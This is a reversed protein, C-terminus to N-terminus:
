IHYVYDINSGDIDGLLVNYVLSSPISATFLEFKDINDHQQECDIEAIIDEAVLAAFDESLASLYTIHTQISQVSDEVIEICSEFRTDQSLEWGQCFNAQAALYLELVQQYKDIMEQQDSATLKDAAVKLEQELQYAIDALEAGENFLENGEIKLSIINFAKLYIINTPELVMAEAYLDLAEIFKSRAIIAADEDESSELTWAEGAVKNALHYLDLSYNSLRSDPKTASVSTVSLSAEVAEQAAMYQEKHIEVFEDEAALDHQSLDIGHHNVLAVNAATEHEFWSSITHAFYHQNVRSVTSETKTTASLLEQEYIMSNHIIADEQTLREGTLYLMFNEIVEPGCNTYRQGETPLQEIKYGGEKFIVALGESIATNEPDLYFAKYGSGDEQAVFMVGVAHKGYLSIPVLITEETSLKVDSFIKAINNHNETFIYENSLILINNIRKNRARLNLTTRIGEMTYEYFPKAIGELTILHSPNLGKHIVGIAHPLVKKCSDCSQVAESQSQGRNIPPYYSYYMEYLSLSQITKNKYKENTSLEAFLKQAACSKNWQQTTKEKTFVNVVCGEPKPSNILEFGNNNKNCSTFQFLTNVTNIIRYYIQSDGSLALLKAKEGNPKFTVELSGMMMETKELNGSGCDFIPYGRNNRRVQTKMSEGLKDFLEADYIAKTLAQSLGILAKEHDKGGVPVLINNGNPIYYRKDGMQNKRNKGSTLNEPAGFKLEPFLRELIQKIIFVFSFADNPNPNDHIRKKILKRREESFNIPILLSGRTYVSLDQATVESDPGEDIFKVSQEQKNIWYAHGSKDSRVFLSVGGVSSYQILFNGTMKTEIYPKSKNTNYKFVKLGLDELIFQTQWKTLGKDDIIKKTIYTRTVNLLRQEEIDFLKALAFPVCQKNRTFEQTADADSNDNDEVETGDVEKNPQLIISKVFKLIMDVAYSCIKNLTAGPNSLDIGYKNLFKDIPNNRFIADFIGEIKSMIGRMIDALLNYGKEFIINQVYSSMHSILLLFFQEPNKTIEATIKKILLSVNKAKDTIRKIYEPITNIIENIIGPIKGIKNKVSTLLDGNIFSVIVDIFSRIAKISGSRLGQFLTKLNKIQKFQNFIEFGNNWLGLLANKVWIIDGIIDLFSQKVERMDEMLSHGQTQPDLAIFTNVDIKSMQDKAMVLLRNFLNKIPDLISSKLSNLIEKHWQCIKNLPEKILNKIPGVFTQKISNLLENGFHKILYNILFSQMVQTIVTTLIRPVAIAPGGFSTAIDTIYDELDEIEDNIDPDNFILSLLKKTGNRVFRGAPMAIAPAVLRTQPIYASLLLAIGSAINKRAEKVQEDENDLPPLAEIEYYIGLGVADALVIESNSIGDLHLDFELSNEIIQKFHYTKKLAIQKDSNSEIFQLLGEAHAITTIILSQESELHNQMMNDGFNYVQEEKDLCIEKFEQSDLFQSIEELHKQLLEKAKNLHFIARQKSNQEEEPNYAINFKFSTIGELLRCLINSGKSLEIEFMAFHYAPLTDFEGYIPITELETSDQSMVLSNYHNGTYQLNVTRAEEQGANYTAPVSNIHIRLTIGLCQALAGVTGSDAWVRDARHYNIYDDITHINAPLDGHLDETDELRTALDVGFEEARHTSVYNVAVKRLETHNYINGSDTIGLRSLQDAVAWYFCNGDGDIPIIYFQGDDTGLKNGSLVQRAQDFKGLRILSQAYKIVCNLNVFKYKTCDNKVDSNIQEFFEKLQAEDKDYCLGFKLKLDELIFHNIQKHKKLYYYYNEFKKFLQYNNLMTQLHSEAKELRIEEMKNRLAFTHAIIDLSLEDGKTEEAGEAQEKQKRHEEVLKELSTVESRQFIIESSGPEGSRASRGAAQKQTRENKPLYTTVEHLGGNSKVEDSLKIDTGRGGINTSIIIKSSTVGGSKNIEEIKYADSENEYTIIDAYGSEKLKQEIKKLAKPTDCVFLVARPQMKSYNAAIGVICDLWANEDELMSSGIDNRQNPRFPPIITSVADYINLIFDQEKKSGLTGTLGYIKKYLKLYACNPIFVSTLSSCSNIHLNHKMQLFPHLDTWIFNQLRVGIDKELPLINDEGDKKNIVYDEDVYLDYKARIANDILLDLKKSILKKLFSSIRNDELIKAKLEAKNIEKKIKTKDGDTISLQSIGLEQEAKILKQWIDIYIFKVQDVGAVPKAQNTILAYNDLIINDAEDIIVTQCERIVPIGNKIHLVKTGLAEVNNHLHDFAFAGITGYVVDHTYCEKLGEVYPNSLDPNNHTVSIGFLAYFNERDKVADEALVQNSTIIDVTEGQLTRIAALASTVTTKGEGTNIQCFKNTGQDLLELIALIQVERLSHGTAIENARMIAAIASIENYEHGGEKNKTKEGYERIQQKTYTQYTEQYKQVVEQYKEKHKEQIAGYKEKYEMYNQVKEDKCFEDTSTARTENNTPRKDEIDDLKKVSAATPENDSRVIKHKIRKSLEDKDIELETAVKDLQENFKEENCIQKLSEIIENFIDFYIKFENEIRSKKEEFGRKIAEIQEETLHDSYGDSRSDPAFYQRLFGKFEEFENRSKLDNIKQDIYEELRQNENDYFEKVFECKNNTDSTVSTRMSNSFMNLNKQRKLKQYELDRKKELYYTRERNKTLKNLERLKEQATVDLDRKSSDLLSAILSETTENKTM